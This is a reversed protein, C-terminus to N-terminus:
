CFPQFNLLCRGPLWFVPASSSVSFNLLFSAFDVDTYKLELMQTNLNKLLFCLFLVPFNDFSHCSFKGSTFPM